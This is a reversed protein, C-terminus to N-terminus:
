GTLVGLSLMVVFRARVAERVSSVVGFITVPEDTEATM